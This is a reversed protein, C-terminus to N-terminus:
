NPKKRDCADWIVPPIWDVPPNADIFALTDAVVKLPQEHLKEPHSDVYKTFEKALQDPVIAHTVCLASRGDKTQVITLKEDTSGNIALGVQLTELVGTLYGACHYYLPEPWVHRCEDVLDSADIVVQAQASGVAAISTLFGLLVIRRM